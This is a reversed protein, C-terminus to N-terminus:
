GGLQGAGRQAEHRHVGVGVVLRALAGGGGRAVHGLAVLDHDDRARAALAAADEVRGHVAGLDHGVQGGDPPGLHGRGGLDEAHLVAPQAEDVGAQGLAVRRRGQGLAAERQRVVLDGRARQDGEDALEARVHEDGVVLVAAVRVGVVDLGVHDRHGGEVRRAVGVAEGAGAVGPLRQLQVVRVAEGAGPELREARRQHGAPHLVRVLLPEVVPGGVAPVGTLAHGRAHPAGVPELHAIAREDGVGGLDIGV